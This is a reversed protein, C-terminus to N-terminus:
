LVYVSMTAYFQDFFKAAIFHSYFASFHLLDNKTATKLARSFERKANFPMLHTNSLPIQRTFHFKQELSVKQRQNKDSVFLCLILHCFRVFVVFLFLLRREFFTECHVIKASLIFVQECM